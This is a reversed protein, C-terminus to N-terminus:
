VTNLNEHLDEVYMYVCLVVYIRTLGNNREQGALFFSCSYSASVFLHGMRCISFIFKRTWVSEQSAM